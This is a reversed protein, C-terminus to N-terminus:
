VQEVRLISRRSRSGECDREESAVLIGFTRTEETQKLEVIFDVGLRGGLDPIGGTIGHLFGFLHSSLRSAPQWKENASMMIHM